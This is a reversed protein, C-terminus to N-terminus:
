GNFRVEQHQLKTNPAETMTNTSGFRNGNVHFHPTAALSLGTPNHQHNFTIRGFFDLTHPQQHSCAPSRDTATSSFRELMESEACGSHQSAVFQRRPAKRGPFSSVPLTSTRSGFPPSSKTLSCYNMLAQDGTGRPRIWIIRMIAKHQNYADNKPLLTGIPFIARM